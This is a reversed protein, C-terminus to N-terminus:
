SLNTLFVCSTFYLTFQNISIFTILHNPLIKLNDPFFSLISTKSNKERSLINFPPIHSYKITTIQVRLMKFNESKFFNDFVISYSNQFIVFSM